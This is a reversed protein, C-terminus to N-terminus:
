DETEDDSRIKSSESMRELTIEVSMKHGKKSNCDKCAPVCNKKNSKGGRAIPVLHDM